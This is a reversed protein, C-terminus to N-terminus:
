PRACRFAKRSQVAHIEAQRKRRHVQLRQAASQRERRRRNGGRRQRVASVAGGIASAVAGAVPGLADGIARSARAAPMAKSRAAPFNTTGSLLASRRRMVRRARDQDASLNPRDADHREDRGQGHRSRDHRLITGPDAERGPRPCIAAAARGTRSDRDRRDAREQGLFAGDSQIPGRDAGPNKVDPPPQVWEVCCRRRRSRNWRRKSGSKSSTASAAPLGSSPASGRQRHMQKIM